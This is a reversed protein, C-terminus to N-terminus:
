TERKRKAAAERHPACRLGRALTAFKEDQSWPAGFARGLETVRRM